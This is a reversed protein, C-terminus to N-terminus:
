AFQETLANFYILIKDLCDHGGCIWEGGYESVRGEGQPVASHVHCITLILFM